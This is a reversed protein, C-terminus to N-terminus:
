YFDLTSLLIHVDSSSVPRKLGVLDEGEDIESRGNASVIINDSTQRAIGPVLLQVIALEPNTPVNLKSPAFISQALSRARALYM